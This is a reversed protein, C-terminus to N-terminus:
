SGAFLQVVERMKEPIPLGAPCKSVCQECATCADAKVPLSAYLQDGLYKLEDPYGRKMDAARFVEPINIGQPCPMCYGCRLCVQGYRFDRGMSGILRRLEAVEEESIPVFPSALAANEEVERVAKMGPIVCSVHPNSLVYRLSGAVIADAGGLGPQRQEEPRVLQGGSLPKMIIVGMDHEAALPLIEAEVGEQDLPSYALMITEFEGCEIAKRMVSLERHISIGIHRVKGQEVAKKAAELAGGPAMVQEWERQSSVSHLQWLDVYDTRLQRLSTHLDEMASKADRGYTKTALYFDDRRHSIARGIKEESDKYVRATDVFNIGLDLARNLARNAEEFSVDPLKIAGFGIASVRLETRGLRRYEM